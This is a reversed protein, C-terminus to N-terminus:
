HLLLRKLTNPKNSEGTAEILVCGENATISYPEGLPGFVAPYVGDKVDVAELYREAEGISSFILLPEDAQVFLAVTSITM